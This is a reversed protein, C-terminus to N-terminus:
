PVTLASASSWLLIDLVRLPSLHRAEPLGRALDALWEWLCADDASVQRRVWEHYAPYRHGGDSGDGGVGSAALVTADCLPVLAPRKRALVTTAAEGSMGDACDFRLLDRLQALASTEDLDGPEADVLTLEPPIRRLLTTIADANKTLVALSAHASFEAGALHAAILDEATIHFPDDTGDLRGLADFWSGTFRPDGLDDVSLFRRLLRRGAEADRDAIVWPMSAV